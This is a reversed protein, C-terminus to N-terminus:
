FLSENEIFLGGLTIVANELEGHLPTLLHAHSSQPVITPDAHLRKVDHYKLQVLNHELYPRSHSILHDNWTSRVGRLLSTHAIM